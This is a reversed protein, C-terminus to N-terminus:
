TVVSESRHQAAPTSLVSHGFLTRSLCSVVLRFGESEFASQIDNQELSCHGYARDSTGACRLDTIMAQIIAVILDREGVNPHANIDYIVAGSQPCDFSDAVVGMREMVEGEALWGYHTLKGDRIHTYVHEGNSLRALANQLFAPKEERGVAADYLLLDSVDDRHIATANCDVDRRRIDQCYVKYESQSWIQRRLTDFSEGLQERTLASRWRSVQESTAGFFALARKSTQVARRSAEATLRGAARKHVVLEYVRDHDSAFREKWPDGGPTLDFRTRGESLLQEALLLMHLKGPSYRALLPSHAIIALHLQESNAIGIHMSVAQGGIKGVTVHILEPHDAFLRVHFQRKQEDARFPMSDSLAGHRMDYYPIIQDLCAEFEGEDRIRSFEFAGLRKLRNLRSKNSKKRLSRGIGDGTLKWWPRQHARLELRMRHRAGPSLGEIAQEPVYKLLIDQKPFESEVAELAELFFTGAGSSAELWVQYEAQHAGPACLRQENRELALIFLGDLEGQSDRRLIVVPSFQRAYAAFWTLVFGPSQFPTAWACADILSEWGRRFTPDALLEHACDHVVTVASKM